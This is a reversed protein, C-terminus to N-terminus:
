GKFAVVIVWSKFWLFRNNISSPILTTPIVRVISVVRSCPFLMRGDIVALWFLYLLVQSVRMNEYSLKEVIKAIFCHFDWGLVSFKYPFFLPTLTLVVRVSHPIEQIPKLGVKFRTYVTFWIM